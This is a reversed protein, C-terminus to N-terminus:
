TLNWTAVAHGARQHALYANTLSVFDGPNADIFRRQWQSGTQLSAVRQRIIDLYDAIDGDDISLARLGRQARTLLEQQILTALRAKRGGIWNVHSELGHRAAQYFNDKAQAFSVDTQGTRCAECLDTVLGYFFAANALADLITPSAAPTRQEIRIHPTGDNDFGLLPRNWRWITGNHLRLHQFSEIPDSFSEPLLVPFHLLNEIFCELISYRAFDSGFSVRHLPGDAAGRYGGSAIAQEFLPIRTEQWLDKGFLYPANACLAVLAASALISANYFHHARSLPCQIHLQFSTTAAELMVDHHEIKLHERGCIDLVIPKNRTQLVQENLARYRNMDSMNGLHLDTQQLTPLTGITLLNLGLNRAHREAQQWTDDLDRHLLRFANGALPMPPTNLEVNFKALEPGAMPNAFSQLYNQNAPAPQMDDDLLWAEIEFGAVPAAESCARKDILKGLLETEATLRQHFRRFDVDRYNTARIEQGM